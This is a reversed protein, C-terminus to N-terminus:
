VSFRGWSKYRFTWLSLGSMILWYIIESFWVWHLGWDTYTIVIYIYSLYIITSLAQLRMAYKTAGVGILANVFISGVSLVCLIGLLVYFTFRAEIFIDPDTGGLIPYLITAPFFIFPIALIFTTWFSLNSIKKAIPIIARKKRSGLFNSTITNTGAAYGWCPVSLVLYVMRILNSIALAREGLNEILGFFIVWSGLGLVTQMVLHYSMRLLSLIQFKIIRPIRFLKYAKTPKDQLMWIVFVLLAVGEAIASALGAGAIGMEPFGWKGFVLVYDLFINTVVLVITDYMIFKTRAVGTYLAILAVGTFAFFIGYIRYNLYDMCKQVLVESDLFLRMIEHGFLKIALFIIAAIIIELIFMSHFADGVHLPRGEGARRAIIIQGSRSIAYGIAAVVLYFVGVFGMAAFDTQGFHFLFASDILAIINQAASGLMIPISIKLIQRYSTSLQGESM